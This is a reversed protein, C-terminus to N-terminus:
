APLGCGIGGNGLRTATCVSRHAPNLRMVSLFTCEPGSLSLHLVVFSGFCLCWPKNEQALLGWYAYHCINIAKLIITHNNGCCLTLTRTLILSITQWTKSFSAVYNQKVSLLAWKYQLLERLLYVFVLKNGTVPSLYYKKLTCRKRNVVWTVDNVLEKSSIM